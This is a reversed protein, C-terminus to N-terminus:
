FMPCRRREFARLLRVRWSHRATIRLLPKDNGRCVILSETFPHNACFFKINSCKGSISGLQWSAVLLSVLFVEIYQWSHVIELSASLQRRRKQTLPLFWQALVLTYQLVPVVLVTFLLLLSLTGLGVLDAARDTFRAQDFLLKITSTVSYATEAEAFVQGSEVMIGVIRLYSVTYLPVTCGVIVLLPLITSILLLLPNVFSRAVLKDSEGMHFRRFAHFCLRVKDKNIDSSKTQGNTSVSQTCESQDEQESLVTPYVEKKDMADNVIRRHFHIIYHASIQSIVQATMNAYLAWKPIVLLDLSYFDPPLIGNEPSCHM